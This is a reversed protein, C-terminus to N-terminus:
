KSLSVVKPTSPCRANFRHALVYLSSTFCISASFSAVTCAAFTLVGVGKIGDCAGLAHGETIGDCAGLTNGDAVGLM